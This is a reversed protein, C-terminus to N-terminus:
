QAQGCKFKFRRDEKQNSHQSYMATMALGKKCTYDLNGDWGNAWQSWQPLTQITAGNIRSCKIRYRRDEKKNSHESWVGTMVENSGCAQDQTGDWGNFGGWRDNSLTVSGGQNVIGNCTYYWKRDEFHNSHSSTMKTIAQNAPCDFKYAGDWNNTGSIGNTTGFSVAPQSPLTPAQLKGTRLFPVVEDSFGEGAGAGHGWSAGNIAIVPGYDVYAVNSEKMTKGRLITKGQYVGMSVAYAYASEEWQVMYGAVGKAPPGQAPIVTDKGGVVQLLQRKKLKTKGTKGSWFKGDHFQQANLQSAATVAMIIRPDSNEILIQNTLAAGQSHGHIRFEAKVNKFKALHNLLTSGVFKVDDRQSGDVSWQRGVADPAVIIFNESLEATREFRKITNKGQGGSGHCAILVPYVGKKSPVSVTFTRDDLMKSGSTLETPPGVPGPPVATCGKTKAHSMAKTDQCKKVNCRRSVPGTGRDVDSRCWAYARGSNGRAGHQCHYNMCGDVFETECAASCEPPGAPKGRAIAEREELDDESNITGQAMIGVVPDLIQQGDEESVPLATASVAITLIVCTLHCYRM